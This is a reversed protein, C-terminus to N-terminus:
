KKEAKVGALVGKVEVAFDQLAKKVVEEYNPVSDSWFDAWDQATAKKSAILKEMKKAAEPKLLPLLAAGIRVQAHAVFQPVFEQQVGVSLNDYGNQALLKTIYEHFFDFQPSTSQKPM